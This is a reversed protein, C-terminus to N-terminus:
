VYRDEKFQFISLFVGRAVRWSAQELLSLSVIRMDPFRLEANTQPLALDPDFRSTSASLLGGYKDPDPSCVCQSGSKRRLGARGGVKMAEVETMVNAWGSLERRLLTFRVAVEWVM